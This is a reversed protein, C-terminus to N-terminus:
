GYTRNEENSPQHPEFDPGRQQPKDEDHNALQPKDVTHDPKVLVHLVLMRSIAFPEPSPAQVRLQAHAVDGRGRSGRSARAIEAGFILGDILPTEM